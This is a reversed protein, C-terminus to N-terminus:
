FSLLFHQLIHLYVPIRLCQQPSHYLWRLFSHATEKFSLYLHIKPYLDSLRTRSKAVGHVICGMSNELGSYQLPYGKGEAPSRGLGPTSGLDGANYTSEKGASGGPFRMLQFSVIIYYSPLLFKSYCLFSHLTKRKDKAM